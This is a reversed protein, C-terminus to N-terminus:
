QWDLRRVKRKDERMTLFQVRLMAYKRRIRRYEDIRRKINGLIIGQAEEIEAGDMSLFGGYKVQPLMLTAVRRTRLRNNM